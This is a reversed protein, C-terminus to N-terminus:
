YGVSSTEMITKIFGDAKAISADMERTLSTVHAEVDALENKLSAIAEANLNHKLFLVQDRFASVVPEMYRESRHMSQVVQDYERRTQDMKQRSSSRLRASSYQNLESEWEKFLAEGVNEVADIRKRINEAKSECRKCEKNLTGYRKEPSDTDINIVENFRELATQFVGKAELQADRVNAVRDVLIKQKPYGVKEMASYYAPQCGLFFLVALLMLCLRASQCGYQM